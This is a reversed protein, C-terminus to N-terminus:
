RNSEHSLNDFRTFQGMFALRLDGIPGNRQKRILIEATGKDPTDPNYVEDRYIFAILDADQEISGSERLDSMVPRRDSRSELSRNLQSAAIVPVNLEKALAKLSRSIEGVENTRNDKMEPVQLLQLYDIVILGIGNNERAVRRARSRLEGPSLAPTDDIYLPADSLMSVASGIRAWDEDSLKGTRVKNQDIRGLSSLMRMTLQEGPMELSFVLVPKDSSIVANEAMNMALTTKGMSPRGAVIVFDGPHLGSTMADFDYFGTSLGTIDKDSHFLEDIKETTSALLDSIKVPGTGRSHQEAIKFVSQEAKDLLLKPARGQTNFANDIMDTGVAIMERLVARERVIGAYSTVNASSPTNNVLEFLYAEGGTQTIQDNQKLFESLTLVDLPQHRDVLANIAQFILRHEHRYFDASKVHEIVTDWARNDLMLAGLVSQEAEISYPPVKPNNTTKEVRAPPSAIQTNMPDM